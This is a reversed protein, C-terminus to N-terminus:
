NGADGPHWGPHSLGAPKGPLDVGAEGQRIGAPGQQDPMGPHGATEQGNENVKDHTPLPNPAQRRRNAGNQERRIGKAMAVTALRKLLAETFEPDCQASVPIYWCGDLAFDRCKIADKETMLVPIDERFRLDAAQFAHHDPFPHEILRLRAHRLHSFFRWPDGIGAVAHVMTKQFNSLASSIFPDALNVATDGELSMLYEGERAVGNGVVFDVGRLRSPPERLPGAPLCAGNGFRRCGDVVAIEIDRQLRYHQLGDDSIVVNCRHSTLLTRAAAVRDPDVVVPCHCRQALLVPEDGVLRPDSDAMVQRPWETSRGGYGRSVVGPRYGAERLLTVLGAVLPTKGTGGVSINGVVIVPVTIAESRLLGQLYLFRRVRVVWGFLLSLPWLVIAVPNLSYGYRDLWNQM